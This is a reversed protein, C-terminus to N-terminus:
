HETIKGILHMPLETVCPHPAEEAAVVGSASL